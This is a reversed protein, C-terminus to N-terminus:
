GLFSEADERKFLIEFYPHERLEDWSDYGFYDRSFANHPHTPRAVLICGDPLEGEAEYWGAPKDGCNVDGYFSCFCRKGKVETLVYHVTPRGLWATEVVVIDGLELEERRM